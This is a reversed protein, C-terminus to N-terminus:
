YYLDDINMDLFRDLAFFTSIMSVLLGLSLLCFLLLGVFNPSIINLMELDIQNRVIAYFGCLLVFAFLASLVGHLASRALFPRTIFTRTAGVLKMTYILFRKSYLSLRITTNIQALSVVFLLVGFLLLVASIRNVNKNVVDVLSKQYVVSKVSKMKSIQREIRMLSDPQAYKYRLKAEISAPLPNHGLFAVFDQGLMAKLELEADAKSIFKTERVYPSIDLQKRVYAIDADSTGDAFEVMFGINEKVYRSLQRVNLLLASMLGLVFLVLTISVVTSAYSNRLRRQHQPVSNFNTSAAM